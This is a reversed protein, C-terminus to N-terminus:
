GVVLKRMHGRGRVLPGMAQGGLGTGSPGKRQLTHDNLSHAPPHQENPSVAQHGAPPTDERHGQTQLYSPLISPPRQSSASRRM